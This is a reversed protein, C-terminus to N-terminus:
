NQNVDAVIVSMKCSSTSVHTGSFFTVPHLIGLDSQNGRNGTSDGALQAIM